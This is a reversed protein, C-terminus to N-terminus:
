STGASAVAYVGYNNVAGKAYFNGAKSTAPAVTMPATYACKADVGYLIGEVSAGVSASSLASKTRLAIYNGTTARTNVIDM